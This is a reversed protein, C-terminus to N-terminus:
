KMEIQIYLKGDQVFTDEVYYEDYKEIFVLKKCKLIAGDEAEILEKVTRIMSEEDNSSVTIELEKSKEDYIIDTIVYDYEFALEADKNDNLADRLMDLQSKMSPKRMKEGGWENVFQELSKM